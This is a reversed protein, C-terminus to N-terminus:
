DTDVKVRLYVEAAIPLKIITGSETAEIIVGDLAHMLQTWPGNELDETSEFAYALDPYDILAPFTFVVYDTQGIQERTIAPSQGTEPNLPDLDFLFEFANIFSDGDPNAWPEADESNPNDFQQRQWLRFDPTEDVTLYALPESTITIGNKTVRVRYAGNLESTANAVSYVANTEGELDAFDELSGVENRQWQYTTNDPDDVEVALEATAGLPVIISEPAKTIEPPQLTIEFAVQIFVPDGEYTSDDEWTLITVKVPYDGATTPIGSFAITGVPVTGGEGLNSILGPPLEGELQATVPVAREARVAVQM